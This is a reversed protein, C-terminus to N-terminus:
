QKAPWTTKKALYLDPQYFRVSNKHVDFKSTRYFKHRFSFHTSLLQLNFFIGQKSKTPFPNTLSRQLLVYLPRLPPLKDTSSIQLLMMTVKSPVLVFTQSQRVLSSKELFLYAKSVRLTTTDM